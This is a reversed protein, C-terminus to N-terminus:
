HRHKLSSNTDDNNGTVFAGSNAGTLFGKKIAPKKSRNVSGDVSAECTTARNTVPNSSTSVDVPSSLDQIMPGAATKADKKSKTETSSISSMSQEEAARAAASAPTAIIASSSQKKPAPKASTALHDITSENQNNIIGRLLNAPASLLEDKTSKSPKSSSSFDKGKHNNSSKSSSSTSGGSSEAAKMAAMSTDHDDLNVFFLVPIDGDEGLGGVYKEKVDVWTYSFQIGLKVHM